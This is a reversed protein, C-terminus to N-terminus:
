SYFINVENKHIKIEKRGRLIFVNENNHIETVPYPGNWKSGLKGNQNHNKLLVKEGVNLVIEHQDKDYSTKSKTKSTILNEWAILASEQLKRRLAFTYDDYNYCPEPARTFTHPV